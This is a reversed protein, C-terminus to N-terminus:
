FGTIMNSFVNRSKAKRTL